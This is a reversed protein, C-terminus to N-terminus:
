YSNEVNGYFRGYSKLIYALAMNTSNTSGESRYVKMNIPLKRGAFRDM